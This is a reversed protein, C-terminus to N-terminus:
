GHSIHLHDTHDGGRHTNFIVQIGGPFSFLGGQQRRAEREPMGAAILAAQGAKILERGRLPIDTANGTSHQSVRGNVTYLSHGTGDSGTLPRGYVAATRKAFAVLSPKLRGPNPGTIRFTGNARPQARRTPSATTARRPAPPAAPATPAKLTRLTSALGLLAGPEGRQQLYSRLVDPRTLGDPTVAPGLPAAPGAPKAAPRPARGPVAQKAPAKANGMIIRVYNRTEDFRKYGDPRGSNYISLAQRYDGGTRKLADRILRAAGDLDDSARGDGLTVGYQRATAPMFQAIDRAGASSTLGQRFGSEQQIMALFIREDIGYRRAARRAALRYDPM